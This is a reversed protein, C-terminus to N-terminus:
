RKQAIVLSRTLRIIRNIWRYSRQRISCARERSHRHPSKRVRGYAKSQADRHFSTSYCRRSPRSSCRERRLRHRSARVSRNRRLLVGTETERVRRAARARTPWWVRRRQEHRGQRLHAHTQRCGDPVSCRVRGPLFSRHSPFAQAAGVEIEDVFVVQDVVGAPFIGPQIM